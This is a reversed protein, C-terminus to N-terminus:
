RFYFCNKEEPISIPIVGEIIPKLKKLYGYLNKNNLMGIILWVKIDKNKFYKLLQTAGDINHAGDM